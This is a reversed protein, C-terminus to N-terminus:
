RSFILTNAITTIEAMVEKYDSIKIEIETIDDVKGKQAASIVERKRAIDEEFKESISQILDRVQENFVGPLEKRLKSKIEPILESLIATRIQQKRKDDSNGGFLKGLLSLVEPLFIVVVELIPAIVSTTVALVTTITKFIKSGDKLTGLLGTMGRQASNVMTRSSSSIKEIYDDSLVSETNLNGLSTLDTTFTGIIDEGISGMSENVNAILSHRVIDSISSSLSENGGAITANVLSNINNSIEKGVKEVIHNIKSNSYKEQAEELLKDRGAIVKNISLELEEIAEKNEEKSRGLSSNLTNVAEKIIYYSEKLEDTFLNAFLQDPDIQSLIRQLTEGSRSDIPTVNKACGLKLEIANHLQTRVKEIEESSRVDMKSLFFSFDRGYEQINELQNEMKRTMTGDEISTLVIYHVGKDLYELIAQNHLDLPSQFGPMDVLVLPQISLINENELFVKIYRYKTAIAGITSIKNLEYRDFSGDKKVAEIREDESYHLETALATEPTIGVPLYEMGLFSNLLSSKGSSFAGVVPILLETKEIVVKFDELHLSEIVESSLDFQEIKDEITSIYNLFDRQSNLM